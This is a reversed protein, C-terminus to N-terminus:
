ARKNAYIVRFAAALNKQTEGAAKGTGTSKKGVSRKKYLVAFKDAFEPKIQPTGKNEATGDGGIMDAILEMGEKISGQGVRNLVPLPEPRDQSIKASLSVQIDGGTFHGAFEVRSIFDAAEVLNLSVIDGAKKPEESIPEVDILSKYGEKLPAHPVTMDELLKFKYGVVVYSEVSTGTSVRDQRRNPDGLACVFEVKDSKSGEAAKQDDSMKAREAEGKSRFADAKSNGAKTKQPTAAPAGGEAKAANAALADSIAM